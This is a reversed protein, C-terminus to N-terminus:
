FSSVPFASWYIILLLNYWIIMDKWVGQLMNLFYQHCIHHYPRYSVALQKTSHDHHHDDPPYKVVIQTLVSIVIVNMFPVMEMVKIELVIVPIIIMIACMTFVCIISLSSVHLWSSKVITTNRQGLNSTSFVVTPDWNNKANEQTWPRRLLEDELRELTRSFVRFTSTPHQQPCLAEFFFTQFPLMAIALYLYMIYIYISISIHYFVETTHQNMYSYVHM